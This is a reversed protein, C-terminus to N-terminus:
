SEAAPTPKRRPARKPAPAEAEAPEPEERVTPLAAASGDIAGFIVASLWGEYSTDTREDVLGRAALGDAIAALQERYREADGQARELDARVDDLVRADVDAAEERDVKLAIEMPMFVQPNAIVAPHDADALTKGKHVRYGIGDPDRLVGDKRAVVLESTM